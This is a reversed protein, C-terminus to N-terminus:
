HHAAGNRQREAETLEADGAESYVVCGNVWLEIAGNAKRTLLIDDEGSKKYDKYYLVEEGPEIQEATDPHLEDNKSTITARM